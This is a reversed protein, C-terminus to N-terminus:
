LEEWTRSGDRRVIRGFGPRPLHYAAVVMGEREAWDLMSDRTAVATAPDADWVTSWGPESVQAPHHIADALLLGRQGGSSILLSTHGPTPVVTLEDTVAADEPVLDLVGCAALPAVALEADFGYDAYRAKVDPRRVWECETTPVLYRARPFTPTGDATLNWGYHDPHLHTLYVLDVDEPRVGQEALAALLQGREGAPSADPAPGDGTDVLVTRAPTRVLFVNMDTAWEGDAPFCRPFRRRYPEWESAPVTPFVESLRNVSALPHRDWLATVHVEGISVSSSAM